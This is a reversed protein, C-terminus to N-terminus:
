GPACSTAIPACSSIFISPDSDGYCRFGGSDPPGSDPMGADPPGSDPPGADMPRPGADRPGADRRGADRPGADRPGADDPGADDPGADDPGADDGGDDTGGDALPGADRERPGVDLFFGADVRRGTRRSSCDCGALLLAGLSIVGLAAARASLLM